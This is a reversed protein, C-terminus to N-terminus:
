LSPDLQMAACLRATIECSPDSANQLRQLARIAASRVGVLKDKSRILM